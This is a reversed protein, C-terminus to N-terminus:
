GNNAFEAHLLERRRTLEKIAEEKSEFRGVNIYKGKHQITVYGREM